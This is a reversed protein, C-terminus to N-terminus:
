EKKQKLKRLAGAMYKWEAAMKEREEKFTALMKAVEGQILTLGTRAKAQVEESRREQDQRIHAITKKFDKIRLKEGRQLLKKLQNAVMEEEQRFDALIQNVGNEREAQRLIIDEMMTNFDKKRLSESKALIDRLEKAMEERRERFERLMGQTDEAIGRVIKVREDYSAAIDEAIKKLDAM